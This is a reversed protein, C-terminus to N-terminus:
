FESNKLISIRVSVTGNVILGQNGNRIIAQYSMTKPVDGAILTSFQAIGMMMMLIVYQAMNM